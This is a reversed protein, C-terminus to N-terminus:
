EFNVLHKKRAVTLAETRGSCGLKKIVNQIHAQITYVSRGSGRAIEKPSQGDALAQLVSIEAPTLPNDPHASKASVSAVARDLLLAIGGLGATHILGIADAVEDFLAPSKVARLVAAACARVSEVGPAERGPRQTLFRQAGTSRGALAETIACLARAIEATREGHLYEFGGQELLEAARRVEDVARDREGAGLAYLALLATNFVRDFRYAARDRCSVGLRYAEDFRGDWAALVARAHVIYATRSIDSTVASAFQKELAALRDPMGRRVEIHILQLLAAQLAFRNGAKLGATMSQQALWASKTLDDEYLLAVNELGSLAAASTVHLGTENALAHARSFYAAITEPRENLVLATIGMRHFLRARVGDADLIAAFGRTRELAARAERARGALAYAPALFSNVKAQIEAPIGADQAYPELLEIVDKGQDFLFVAFRVALDARLVGDQAQAMARQMQAEARDFRGADAERVARLALVITENSRIQPDLAAIAEGVADGHAQEVLDFGHAGLLRVIDDPAKIAAYGRLAAALAGSAELARAACLRTQAVAEDGAIEVEHRLFDAFLDHARYVGPRDNYIFAVRDRLSEVLAKAKAYGAHRLVEIDIEPLYAIVRLLERDEQNLSGYVQEALYRYVMERTTAAINRLDVSRTSTRLAFSLATPWGSTMQLIQELEEDRVSVRVSKATLRAEDITFALDQEDVGLDMEGYALWSGVPLDLASRSSLLWRVRGKTREILSVLFRTIEPDAEALQLDDIAVIGNFAKIHAHMWMALDAGPTKSGANKEYAGSVTKRADPAYEIVAESFGRVFGLLNANEARVDFRAVPERELSALYQRLALSKGYGAPAIILVIRQQAAAAIRELVRPRMIPHFAGGTEVRGSASVSRIM